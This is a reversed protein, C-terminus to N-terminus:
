RGLADRVKKLAEQTEAGNRKAWEDWYGVMREAGRKYDDPTADIYGAWSRTVALGHLSPYRDDLLETTKVDMLKDLHEAQQDIGGVAGELGLAVFHPLHRGEGEAKHLEGIPFLVREFCAGHRQGQHQGAAEQREEYIEGHRRGAHLPRREVQALRSM